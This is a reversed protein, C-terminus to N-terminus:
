GVAEEDVTQGSGGGTVADRGAAGALFHDVPTQPQANGTDSAEATAKKSQDRGGGVLAKINTLSNVIDYWFPGGLGILLGGIILWIITARSRDTWEAPLPVPVTWLFTGKVFGATALREDNWGIPVGAQQLATLKSNAATVAGRWDKSAADLAAQDGAAEADDVAKRKVEVSKQLDDAASEQMAIVKDAIQPNQLYTAVLQQPHVFMSWSVFIAIVVSFLRARRAFFQSAEDGFANFNQAIDKLVGDMADVGSARIRDGFESSGLRAMFANVDLHDLRRGRWLWNWLGEDRSEDNNTRSIQGKFATGPPARNVTMFNLFDTKLKALELANTDPYHLAIVRDFFHGLMLRLGKVRIALLRHITEVFVSTVMSLIFMTISFALAANLWLM